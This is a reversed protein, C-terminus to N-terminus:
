SISAILIGPRVIGFRAFTSHGSRKTVLVVVAGSILAREPGHPPCGAINDRGRDWSLGICVYCSAQATEGFTLVLESLYLTNECREDMKQVTASTNQCRMGRPSM